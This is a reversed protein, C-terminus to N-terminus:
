AVHNNFRFSVGDVLLRVNVHGQFLPEAVVPLVNKNRNGQNKDIGNQTERANVRVDPNVHGNEHEGNQIHQEPGNLDRADRLHLLALGQKLFVDVLDVTPLNQHPYIRFLTAQELPLLDFRNFFTLVRVNEEQVVFRGHAPDFGVPKGFEYRAAQRLRLEQIKGVRDEVAFVVLFEQLRNEPAFFQNQFCSLLVTKGSTGILYPAPNRDLEM